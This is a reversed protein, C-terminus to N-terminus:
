WDVRKGSQLWQKLLYEYYSDGRAGLTITSGSRFQGTDANVFIPVLGARKPLSHLHSTVTDVAEQQFCWILLDFFCDFVHFNGSICLDRLIELVKYKSDGTTYTLDRFELQITSVESVSSDPGWRPAHAGHTLLNVDSYPINSRSDFAPLLREGLDIQSAFLKIWPQYNHCIKQQVGYNIHLLSSLLRLTCM